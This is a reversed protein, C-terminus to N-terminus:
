ARGEKSPMARPSDAADQEDEDDDDRRRLRWITDYLKTATIMNPLDFSRPKEEGEVFVDMRARSKGERFIEIKTIEDPDLWVEYGPVHISTM